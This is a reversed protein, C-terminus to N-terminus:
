KGKKRKGVREQLSTLKEAIDRYGVDVGYVETLADVARRLDGMAEYAAGLEYQLAKSEESNRGPAELGKKFWLVAAQPMGKQVFCHGLMNCCHFYRPTGDASGTLGAAVQFERIAEDLLDMEKYATAMNYHTEYDEHAAASEGEAELRFEEFIEALGSDLGSGAPALPAAAPLQDLVVDGFGTDFAFDKEAPGSNAAPESVIEAVDADPSQAKAQLKARRSDIEAHHGFQRELLELTDFAIDSYGQKIYFDVSELEQQMMAEVNPAEGDATIAAASELPAPPRDDFMPDLLTTGSDSGFPEEIENLDAFSVGVHSSDDQAVSNWEFESASGATPEAAAPDLTGLASDFSMVKAPAPDNMLTAEAEEISGGLANVRAVYRQEDPALRVLQTLAYREDEALGAVEAAEAMRELAVRLKEMDRQWWHIRALLRLSPVHEPDRALLKNVLDLVDNEERGALMPEIIIGIIRAAADEQGLKLYLDAVAIYRRYDSADHTLLRATAREAGGADEAEIYAQALMSVLEPEDPSDAVANELIEAAEDATGLAAHASVLGKLAQMDHPRLELAKAYAALSPEFQSIDFLRHAAEGYAKAAELPMGEKLYGDALKLRIDTNHPDLDAIKHLVKLANRTQGARTCADAVVLYQTRADAILGQAAYLEALEKAIAPDRPKLKDIKRYMAIAKLRFEQKRYHEAIRLFCTAAEEQEGDRALLDGLMNLTTLDDPDHNIIQRYEKIAASIKGQALFKEAAKIVKAKEFAM